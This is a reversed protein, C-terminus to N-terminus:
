SGTSQLYEKVVSTLFFFRTQQEPRRPLFQFARQKIKAIAAEAVNVCARAGQMDSKVCTKVAEDTTCLILSESFPIALSDPPRKTLPTTDGAMVEAMIIALLDELQVQVRELLGERTMM